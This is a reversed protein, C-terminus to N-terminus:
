EGEGIREKRGFEKSRELKRTKLSVILNGITDDKLHDNQQDKMYTM